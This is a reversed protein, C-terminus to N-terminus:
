ARGMLSERLQSWTSTLFTMTPLHLNNRIPPRNVGTKVERPVPRIEGSGCSLGFIRAKEPAYSLQNSRRGTVGSAAPELGTAGAMM